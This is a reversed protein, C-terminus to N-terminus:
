VKKKNCIRGSEDMNDRCIKELIPDEVWKGDVYSVMDVMSPSLNYVGFALWKDAKHYYKHMESLCFMHKCLDVHPQVAVCTIGTIEEPTSYQARMNVITNKQRSRQKVYELGDM